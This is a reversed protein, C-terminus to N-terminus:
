SIITFYLTYMLCALSYTIVCALFSIFDIQQCRRDLQSRSSTMNAAQSDNEGKNQLQYELGDLNWHLKLLFAYELITTSVMLKCILLWIDMATFTTASPGRVGSSNAINVLMLFITMVLSIRGPVQKAPIFFSIWTMMTLLSTPFYLNIFVPLRRRKLNLVFGSVSYNTNYDDTFYKEDERLDEFKISYQLSKQFFLHLQEASGRYIQKKADHRVSGLRVVCRQSDLPYHQFNMSCHMEVRLDVWWWFHGGSVSIAEPTSDIMSLKEARKLGYFYTEPTWIEHLVKLDLSGNCTFNSLIPDRWRISLQLDVTFSTASDSVAQVQKIMFNVHTVLPINPEMSPVRNTSYNEPVTFEELELECSSSTPWVLSM